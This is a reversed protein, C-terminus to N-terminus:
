AAKLRSVRTPAKLRAPARRVPPGLQREMAEFLRAVQDKDQADCKFAISGTEVCLSRLKDTDRAALAVALGSRVLLRALSASLGDGAGVILATKYSQTITNETAFPALM